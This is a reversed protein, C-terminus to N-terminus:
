AIIEAIYKYCYDHIAIITGNRVLTFIHSKDGNKPTKPLLFGFPGSLFRLIRLNKLRM